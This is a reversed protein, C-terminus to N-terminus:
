HTHQHRPHEGVGPTSAPSSFAKAHPRCSLEHNAFRKQAPRARSEGGVSEWAGVCTAFHHLDVGVAGQDHAVAVSLAGRDSVWTAVCPPWHEVVRRPNRSRYRHGVRRSTAPRTRSHSLTCRLTHIRFGEFPCHPELMTMALRMDLICTDLACLAVVIIQAHKQSSPAPTHSSLTLTTWTAISSRANRHLADELTSAHLAAHHNHLYPIITTHCKNEPYLSFM